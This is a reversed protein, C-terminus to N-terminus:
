LQVSHAIVATECVFLLLHRFLRNRSFNRWSCHSDLVSQVILVSLFQLFVIRSFVDDGEVPVVFPQLTFLVEVDEKVSFRVDVVEVKLGVSASGMGFSDVSLRFTLM